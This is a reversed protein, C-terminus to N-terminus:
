KLTLYIGHDLNKVKEYRAGCISGSISYKGKELVIFNEGDHPVALDYEEDAERIHLIMNCHSHNKVVLLANPSDKTSNFMENLLAVTKNKHNVRDAQLLKEFQQTDVGTMMNKKEAAERVAMSESDVPRKMWANNKLEIIRKKLLANKPDDPHANDLYNEIEGIDNSTLINRVNKTGSCDLMVLSYGLLLLVKIIKKMM